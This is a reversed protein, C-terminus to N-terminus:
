VRMPSAARRGFSSGPELGFIHSASVRRIDMFQKSGVNDAHVIFARDYEDLMDCLKKDYQVFSEYRLLVGVESCIILVETRLLDPFYNERFYHLKAVSSHRSKRWALHRCAHSETLSEM